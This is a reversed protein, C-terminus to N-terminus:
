KQIRDALAQLDEIAIVVNGTPVARYLNLGSTPFATQAIAKIGLRDNLDSVQADIEKVAEIRQANADRRARDKALARRKVGAHLGCLEPFDDSGSLKRGCTHSSMLRGGDSIREPCTDM